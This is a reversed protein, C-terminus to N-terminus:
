KIDTLLKKLVKWLGKLQPLNKLNSAKEM